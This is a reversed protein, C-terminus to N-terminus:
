GVKCYDVHAYDVRAASLLYKLLTVSLRSVEITAVAIKANTVFEDQMAQRGVTDASLADNEFAFKHIWGQNAM